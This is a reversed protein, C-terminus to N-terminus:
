CLNGVSRPKLTVQFINLLYCGAHQTRGVPSLGRQLGVTIAPKLNQSGYFELGLDYVITKFELCCTLTRHNSDVGAPVDAAAM